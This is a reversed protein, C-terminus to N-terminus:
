GMPIGDPCGGAMLRIKQPPLSLAVSWFLFRPTKADHRLPRALARESLPLYRVCPRVASHASFLQYRHGAKGFQPALPSVTANGAPVQVAGLPHESQQP